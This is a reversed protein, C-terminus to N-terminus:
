RAFILRRNFRSRVHLQGLSKLHLHKSTLRIHVLRDSEAGVSASPEPHQFVIGIGVPSGFTAILHYDKFVGIAIAFLVGMFFAYATEWLAKQFAATGIIEFLTAVVESLPPVFFTLGMRGIIEWLIAWLLLSSMAPLRIGFLQM